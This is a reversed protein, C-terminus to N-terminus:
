QGVVTDTYEEVVGGLHDAFSIPQRELIYLLSSRGSFVLSSLEHNLVVRGLHVFLYHEQLVEPFVKDWVSKGPATVLVVGIFGAVVALWRWVGVREGFLPGSLATLLMPFCFVITTATALPLKSLSYIFLYTASVESIGRMLSWKHVLSGLSVEQRGLWCGIALFSCLGIGRVVMMQGVPMSAGIMKMIADNAALFSMAIAMFAIARQNATLTQGM